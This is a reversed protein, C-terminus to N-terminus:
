GEGQLPPFEATVGEEEPPLNPHPHNSGNMQDIYKNSAGVLSQM